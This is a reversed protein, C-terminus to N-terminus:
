GGGPMQSREERNRATCARGAPPSAGPKAIILLNNLSKIIALMYQCSHGLSQELRRIYM